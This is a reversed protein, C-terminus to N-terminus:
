VKSIRKEGINKDNRQKYKILQKCDVSKLWNKNIHINFVIM